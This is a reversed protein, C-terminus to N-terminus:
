LLVFMWTIRHNRFSRKGNYSPVVIIMYGSMDLCKSHLRRNWYVHLSLTAVSMAQIDNDDMAPWQRGGVSQRKELGLDLRVPGRLRSRWMPKPPTKPWTPIAIIFWLHTTGVMLFPHNIMAIGVNAHKQHILKLHFFSIVVLMIHFIWSPSHGFLGLPGLTAKAM